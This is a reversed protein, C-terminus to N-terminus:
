YKPFSSLECKKHKLSPVIINRVSVCLLEKFHTSPGCEVTYVSYQGRLHSGLEKRLM